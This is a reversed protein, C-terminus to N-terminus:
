EIPALGQLARLQMIQGLHYMDHPLHYLLRSIDGSPSAIVARCDDHTRKLRACADRWAAETPAAPEAFNLADMDERRPGPRGDVRTLTLERWASVHNVNQWISHRDPAPKWAAQQPTVGATAKSWPAAWLGDTWSEDWLKLLTTRDM